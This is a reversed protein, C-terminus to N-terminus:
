LNDYEADDSNDWIKTFAQESLRTVAQATIRDESKSRLFDVFDEVETIKEPPLQQIKAFLDTAANNQRSM